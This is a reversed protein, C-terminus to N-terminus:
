CQFNISALITSLWTRVMTALTPWHQQRELESYLHYFEIYSFVQIYAQNYDTYM